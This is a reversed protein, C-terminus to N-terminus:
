NEARVCRREIPYYVDYRWFLEVYSYKNADVEKLFRLFTNKRIKDCANEIIDLGIGGGEINIKYMVLLAITGVIKSSIISKHGIKNKNTIGIFENIFNNNEPTNIKLNDLYRNIYDQQPNVDIPIDIIRDRALLRAINSGKSFGKTKVQMFAKADKQKISKGSNACIHFIIEALMQNKINGRRVFKNSKDTGDDMKSQIDCFTKAAIILIGDAIKVKSIENNKRLEALIIDQRVSQQSTNPEGENYVKDTKSDKVIMGCEECVLAYNEVHMIASCSPCLDFKPTKRSDDAASNLNLLEM